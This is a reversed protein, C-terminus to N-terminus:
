KLAKELIDKEVLTRPFLEKIGTGNDILIIAEDKKTIPNHLFEDVIIITDTPIKWGKKDAIEKKTTYIEGKKIM